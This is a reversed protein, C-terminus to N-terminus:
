ENSARGHSLLSPGFAVRGPSRGRSHPPSFRSEASVHLHRGYQARPTTHTSQPGLAPACGDFLGPSASTSHVSRSQLYPSVSQDITQKAQSIQDISQKMAPQSPRTTVPFCDRVLAQTEGTSVKTRREAFEMGSEMSVRGPDCAQGGILDKGQM